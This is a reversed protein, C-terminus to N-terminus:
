LSSIEFKSHLPVTSDTYRFCLRQDATRSQKRMHLFGTKEHCPEFLLCYTWCNSHHTHFTQRSVIGVEPRTPSAPPVPTSPKEQRTDLMFGADGNPQPTLPPKLEGLTLRYSVFLVKDYLVYSPQGLIGYLQQLLLDFLIICSQSKVHM